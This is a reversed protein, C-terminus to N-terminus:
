RRQAARSPARVKREGSWVSIAAFFLGVLSGAVSTLLLAVKLRFYQLTLTRQNRLVAGLRGELHGAEARQAGYFAISEAYTQLRIHSRRLDGERAEQAATSAAIPMSVLVNACITVFNYGYSILTIRWGARGVCVFTAAVALAVSQILDTIVSPYPPSVGGCCLKVFNATDSAIRQDPNDCDLLQIKYFALARGGLLYDRQLERTLAARWRVGTLMLVLSATSSLLIYLAIVVIAELINQRVKGGDVAGEHAEGGTLESIIKGGYVPLSLSVVQALVHAVVVCLVILDERGCPKHAVRWLKYIDGLRWGLARATEKRGGDSRHKAHLPPPAGGNGAGLEVEDEDHLRASNSRDIQAVTDTMNPNLHEALHGLIM